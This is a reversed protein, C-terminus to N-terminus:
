TSKACHRGWLLQFTVLINVKRHTGSLYQVMSLSYSIVMLILFCYCCIYHQRPNWNGMLCVYLPLYCSSLAYRDEFRVLICFVYITTFVLSFFM